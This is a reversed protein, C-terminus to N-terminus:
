SARSWWASAVTGCAGAQLAWAGKRGAWTGRLPSRRDGKPRCHGGACAAVTDDPAIPRDFRAPPAVAPRGEM